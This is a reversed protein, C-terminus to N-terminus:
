AGNTGLNNNNNNNCTHKASPVSVQQRPRSFRSASEVGCCTQSIFALHAGWMLQWNTISDSTSFLSSNNSVKFTDM